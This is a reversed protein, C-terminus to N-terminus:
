PKIGGAVCVKGSGSTACAIPLYELGQDVIRITSNSLVTDAVTVVRGTVRM